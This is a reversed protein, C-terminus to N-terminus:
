QELDNRRTVFQSRREYTAGGQDRVRSGPRSPEAIPLLRFARAFRRLSSRLDAGPPNATSARRRLKRGPDGEVAVFKDSIM